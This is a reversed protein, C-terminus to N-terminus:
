IDSPPRKPAHLVEEHTSSNNAQEESPSSRIGLELILFARSEKYPLKSLKIEVKIKSCSQVISASITERVSAHLPLCQVAGLVFAPEQECFELLHDTLRDVGTLLRRLDYNRRQEYIKELRSLTLVSVIQNFAYSFCIYAGM